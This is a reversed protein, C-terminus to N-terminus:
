DLGRSLEVLVEVLDDALVRLDGLVDALELPLRGVLVLGRLGSQRAVLKRRRRVEDRLDLLEQTLLAGIRRLPRWTADESKGPPLPGPATTREYRRAERAVESPRRRRGGM